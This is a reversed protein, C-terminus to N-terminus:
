SSPSWRRWRGAARLAEEVDQALAWSLLVAAAAFM